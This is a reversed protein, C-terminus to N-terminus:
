GYLVAFEGPSFGSFSKFERNFHSQDYYGATMALETMSAVQPLLDVASGFRVIRAYLKPLFGTHRRFVREFQRVSLGYRVSLEALTVNGHRARIYREADAALAHGPRLGILRQEFHRRLLGVRQRTSTTQSLRDLLEDLNTWPLDSLELIHESLEGAPMRFLLPVAQPYLGVGIMENCQPTSTFRDPQRTQGQLGSFVLDTSGPQTQFAFVIKTMVDAISYYVGDGVGPYPQQQSVSWFGDVFGALLPGPEYVVEEM